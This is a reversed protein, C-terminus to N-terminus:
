KEQEGSFFLMKHIKAKRRCDGVIRDDIMTAAKRYVVEKNKLNGLILFELFSRVLSLSPNFILFAHTQSYTDKVRM